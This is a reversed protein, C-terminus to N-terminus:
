RADRVVAIKGVKADGRHEAVYLYVGSGAVKGGSRTRGDWSVQGIGADIDEWVLDGTLTYIRFAAGPTVIFTLPDGTLIYDSGRRSLGIRYPNETPQATVRDGGLVAYAEYRNLGNETGIWVSGSGHDYALSMVKGTPDVLPTTALNVVRGGSTIQALGDDTGIWKVNASDVMVARVVNSPLSSDVTYHRSDLKYTNSASDFDGQLSTLGAPTAVWVVGDRDVAIENVEASLLGVDGTVSEVGIVGTFQDDVPDGPTGGLDLLVIGTKTGVWLVGAKDLAISRVELGPGFDVGVFPAAVHLLANTGLEYGPAISWALSWYTAALVHGSPAITLGHTVVFAEEIPRMDTRGFIESNGNHVRTVAPPESAQDIILVGGGFSGVWVRNDGDVVLSIYGSRDPPSPVGHVPDGPAFNTWRGDKFRVIGLARLEESGSDVPGPAAWLAGSTDVAIQRFLTWPPFDVGPVKTAALDARSDIRYTGDLAAAVVMEGPVAYIARVEGALGAAVSWTVGDASSLLGSSTAAWIAGDYVALDTASSGEIVHQWGSPTERFVGAGSAVYVLGDHEAVAQVSQFQDSSLFRWSGPLLLDDARDAIAFGNEIGVFVRAGITAVATVQDYRVSSEPGVQHYTELVLGTEIDIVTVGSSHGVFLTDGDAHLAFVSAIEDSLLSPEELIEQDLGPRQTFRILGGDESGFWVTGRDDITVSRINADPLGETPSFTRATGTALDSRIIGGSTAAWVTNETAAIRRIDLATYATWDGVGAWAGSAAILTAGLAGIYRFITM